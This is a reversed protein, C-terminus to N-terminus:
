GAYLIARWREEHVLRWTVSNNQPRGRPRLQEGSPSAATTPRTTRLHWSHFFRAANHKHATTHSHGAPM